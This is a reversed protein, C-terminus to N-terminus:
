HTEIRKTFITMSKNCHYWTRYDTLASNAWNTVFTEFAAKEEKAADALCKVHGDIFRRDFLLEYKVFDNDRRLYNIPLFREDKVKVHM